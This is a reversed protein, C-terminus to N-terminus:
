TVCFISNKSGRRGRMVVNSHNKAGFGMCHLLSKFIGRGRFREMIESHERIKNLSDM